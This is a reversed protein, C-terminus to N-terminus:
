LNQAYQYLARLIAQKHSDERYQELLQELELLYPELTLSAPSDSDTLRNQRHAQWRHMEEETLTQPYNRCRYRFLLTRLTANQTKQAFEGLSEPLAQRVDDCWRREDENLFGGSYLGHDADVEREEHPTAYVSTLKDTLQPTNILTRYHQLCQERDIGLRKANDETLAKATTIFPARNVHLLKLGPRQLDGLESNSTYLRERLTQADNEILTDVPISLDVCIIANSNTPHPAVPLIWTCCGQAAPIKSSVHLLVSPSQTNIQKLVQHKSRLGFAYDYLKPQHKKILKALSLTAYVDSLADHAQGHDLNNAKALDELKFSPIGDEKEPWVIGEPRLAYCARALDIIDWRSNGNRWERAYPDFFNRYFLHRTVEDDFRISNYGAVCTQPQSMVENIQRAFEAEIMGDRISQQPTVGTILCAQPHPLLDNAIQAMINIPKGIINLDADTRIAAFQCPTDKIPNAGWTEYDHWLISPARQTM